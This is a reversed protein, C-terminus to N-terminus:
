DEAQEEECPNGADAELDEMRADHQRAGEAGHREQGREEAERDQRDRPRPEHQDQEADPQEHDVGVDHRVAGQRNGPQHAEGDPHQHQEVVRRSRVVLGRKREDERQREQEAAGPSERESLGHLHAPTGHEDGRVADDALLRDHLCGTLHEDVALEPVGMAAVARREHGPLLHPDCRGLPEVQGDLLTQPMAAPSTARTTTRKRTTRKRIEAILTARSYSRPMTKRRPRSKGSGFPGPSKKSIGTTSRITLTSRLVIVSLMGGCSTIVFSLTGTRTLATAYKRITAGFSAITCTSFKMTAVECFACVVNRDTSPCCTSSSSSESRSFILAIRWSIMSSAVPGHPILTEATSTFSTSIGAPMCRAIARCASASRSRRAFTMLASPSNWAESRNFSAASM